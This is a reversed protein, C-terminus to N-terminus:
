AAFIYDIKNKIYDTPSLEPRSNLYKLHEQIEKIFPSESVTKLTKGNRRRCTMSLFLEKKARTMAVYFLRREEEIDGYKSPIIEDEVSPIFVNDFELGKSAHITMLHVGNQIPKLSRSELLNKRLQLYNLKEVNFGITIETIFKNIFYEQKRKRKKHSALKLDTTRLLEKFVTVINEGRSHREYLEISHNFIPYDHEILITQFLNRKNIKSSEKIAIYDNNSIHYYEKLLYILANENDPNNLLDLLNLMLLVEKRQVDKTQGSLKVPFQHYKFQDNCISLQENNRCLVACSSLDDSKILEDLIRKYQEIDDKAYFFRIQKGNENNSYVQKKEREKNHNILANAANIIEKTSRYNEELKIIKAQYDNKFDQIITLDSARFGYISQDDDGVAVVNNQDNVILKILDYQIRSIDQFEDIMLYNFRAQIRKRIASNCNLIISTQIIQDNFDIMNWEEKKAEYYDYFVQNGHNLKKKGSKFLEIDKLISVPDYMLKRDHDKLFSQIIELKESDKILEFREKKQKRNIDSLIIQGFSNFTFVKLDYLEVHINEDSLRKYIREKVEKAADKSFTLILINEIEEGLNILHYFREVISSTKGAGAGALVLAAGQNFHILKEQAENLIIM